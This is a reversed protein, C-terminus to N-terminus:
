RCDGPQPGVQVLALGEVGRCSHPAQPAAAGLVPLLSSVERGPGAGGLASLSLVPPALFHLGLARVGGQLAVQPLVSGAAAAPCSEWTGVSSM